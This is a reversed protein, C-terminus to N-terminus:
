RALTLLNHHVLPGSTMPHRSFTEQLTPNFFWVTVRWFFEPNFNPLPFLAKALSNPRVGGNELARGDKEKGISRRTASNLIM